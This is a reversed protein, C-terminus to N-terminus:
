RMCIPRSLHTARSPQRWWPLSRTPQSHSIRRWSEVVAGQGRLRETRLPLPERSALVIHLTAPAQRCLSEVLRLSAPSPTLEHADDLVLVLDHALLPELAGSMSAAIQEAAPLDNEDTSTSSELEVPGITAFLDGLAAALGSLSHDKASATYWLYRLDATWQTLLTSKGYGAGAVVLTLRKGFAEDLREELAPRRLLASTAASVDM